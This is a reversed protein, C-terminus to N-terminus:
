TLGIGSAYMRGVLALSSHGAGSLTNEGAAQSHLEDGVARVDRICEQLRVFLTTHHKETTRANGVRRAQWSELIENLFQIFIDAFTPVAKFFFREHRLLKVTRNAVEFSPNLSALASHATM